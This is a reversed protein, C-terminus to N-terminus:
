LVHCHTTLDLSGAFADQDLNDDRYSICCGDDKYILYWYVVEKFQKTPVLMTSFGKIYVKDNFRDVRQAQALGAMLNLPIELGTNKELKPLIPFGTVIILNKFIGHWCHGNANDSPELFQEVEFGIECVVAQPGEPDQYISKISPTCYRLGKPLPSSRLAAGLWALQEGTKSISAASGDIQVMLKSENISAALRTGDPLRSPLPRGQELQLRDRILQLIM